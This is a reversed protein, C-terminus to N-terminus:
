KNGSHQFHRFLDTCPNLNFKREQEIVAESFSYNGTSHNSTLEMLGVNVNFISKYIKVRDNFKCILQDIDKNIENSIYKNKDDNLPNSGSSHLFVIQINIKPYRESFQLIIDQCSKCPIRETILLLNGNEISSQQIIKTIYNLLLYESDHERKSNFIKQFRFSSKINNISKEIIINGDKDSTLNITEKNVLSLSDAISSQIKFSGSLTNLGYFTKDDHSFSMVGLNGKLINIKKNSNFNSINIENQVLIKSEDRIMILRSLITILHNLYYPIDNNKRLNPSFIGGTIKKDIFEEPLKCM